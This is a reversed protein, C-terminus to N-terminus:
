SLIKIIRSFLGIIKIADKTLDICIIESEGRETTRDKSSRMKILKTKFM